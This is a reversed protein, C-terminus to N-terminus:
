GRLRRKNVFCGLFLYSSTPPQGCKEFLRLLDDFQGHIDGCINIPSNLELIMPQDLLVERTLFCLLSVEANKICLNKVVKQKKCDLLRLIISDLDLSTKKSISQQEELSYVSTNTAM